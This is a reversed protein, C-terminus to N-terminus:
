MEDILRRPKRVKRGFRTKHQNTSAPDQRSSAPSPSSAAPSANSNPTNVPRPDHPSREPVPTPSVAPSRPLAPPNVSPVEHPTAAQPKKQPPDAVKTSMNSTFPTTIPTKNGKPNFPHFKRLFKRNRRTVRGTGDVKVLYQDFQLVEIIVGTKEWRKPHNGSQNQVFVNEGVKLPHLTHTHESWREHNKVHRKAMARERHDLLERWTEHPAYNGLPAPIMDRIPRGFLIMAPSVGTTPDPTNRYTLMAKQFKDVNLSGTPSINEELIRKVQKVAIEARSNAHPNAVSSLRHYVGWSKFFTKTEDATYQPGGDSSLEEPIGFTSFADRLNSTLGKAGNASRFVMPWNSYRDVLVMYEKSHFTLYDSCVMQFPYVPQPPETPPMSPNSKAKKNCSTCEHRTRTIDITMNPWWVSSAARAKMAPIGQHAAHLSSLVANRLTPPVLIRQGLLIVGDVESLNSAKSSFPRLDSPLQRSDEPFGTNLKNMLLVMTPDSATNQRIEDWTIVPFSSLSALAETIIACEIPDDEDAPTEDKIRLHNLIIARLETSSMGGYIDRDDDEPEGPLELREAPGTPYRSAADAGQQKKGPVHVIRFRYQLTKEKLNLLRRNPIDALSRNNLIQLLPKHDTAVTLDPCGLIFYRTQHLSYAVALSEGEIPSYRTEADHLFRSGVLCLRWGDPCCVPTRSPCSCIKQLLFFGIGEGSYDCSVCTPLNPTFQEVGEKIKEVIHAKSKEFLEDLQPTWEFKMKPKLLHRFPYMEKTMSFAYSAQNVLGFWARADTINIPTPFNLIADLFKKSPRIGSTTISLGAFEVEDQCFQFKSPNLTVGNETCLNLYQCAQFFSDTVNDAWMCTDDVCKVKRPFDSIIADYRQNFGDGSALFGQPSVLYRYRGWPTIFSTYHRDDEHIPVSHYGNWCDVVSKKKDRPVKSALLFPSGVPYSQRVSNDNLPQLDITRRPDGNSKAQLVMRSCYTTPTNVPVVELIGLRVDRDLDSKVKEQWHVPVPSPTHVATPQAKENIYLHLPDGTMKPLNQHECTNFTTSGYYDLLWQRLAPVDEDKGTLGGPLETPLPPPSPPRVPCSCSNDEEDSACTSSEDVDFTTAQPIPFNKPLINLERLAAKSLYMRSVKNCIYALQKTSKTGGMEDKATISLVVAGLVGLDHQGAGNMKMRCPIFDCQRLGLNYATKLPITTSQCGSDAVPTSFIPKLKEPKSVPFGFHKHDNPSVRVDASVYSHPESAAENWSNNEKNFIFHTIPVFKSSSATHLGNKIECLCEGLDCLQSTQQNIFCLQSEMAGHTETENNSGPKSKPTKQEYQSCERHGSNRHGWTGCNSCKSCFKTFHGRKNCKTCTESWAQCHEIRAKRANVGAHAAEGCAWCKGHSKKYGSMAGTDSKCSTLPKKSMELRHIFEVMEDLAFRESNSEALLKQRIDDDALGRILQDKIALSSYDIDADCDEESCPVTYICLRSKKKLAALFSHVTQGPEQVMDAMQIRQSLTSVHIVALKKMEEILREESMDDVEDEDLMGFLDHKLDDDCCLTLHKNAKDDPIDNMEKYNRWERLFNEFRECDSGASIQPREVKWKGSQNQQAAAAGGPARPIPHAGQLHHGLIVAGIAPDVDPTVFPCGVVYCQTVPM